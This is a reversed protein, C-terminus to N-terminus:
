PRVGSDLITRPPVPLGKRLYRLRRIERRLDTRHKVRTRASLLAHTRRYVGWLSTVRKEKFALADEAVFTRKAWEGPEGHVWKGYHAVHGALEWGLWRETGAQEVSVLVFDVTGLKFNLGGRTALPRGTRTTILDVLEHELEDAHETIVMVDFDHADPAEIARSGFVIVERCRQCLADFDLGAESCAARLAEIM